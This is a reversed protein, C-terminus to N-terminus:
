YTVTFQTRIATQNEADGSDGLLGLMPFSTGRVLGPLFAAGTDPIPDLAWLLDVTLKSRHKNLYWNAGFTLVSITDDKDMGLHGGDPDVDLDIYEWRAFAEVEDPIIHYGGQVLFAIPDTHMPDVALGAEPEFNAGVLAAYVNAGNRELSGDLTWVLGDYTHGTLTGPTGINDGTERVEWHVAGGVFAATPEGSWATFDQMQDWGGMLRVDVRATVAFDSHDQDFRKSPFDLSAPPVMVDVVPEQREGSRFGDSIAVAVHVQEHPDWDAWIGQIRGITFIENILTRDVALQYEAETMEERLFPAKDEGASITLTDTIAYGIVIKDAWVDNTDSDVALRLAYTFRPSSIHGAFQVKARPIEFGLEGQDFRDESVGFPDDVNDRDGNRFNYIHRVQILGSIEMLFNNGADRIFFHEGDHGATLGDELLSARTDADALVENILAKVEEARRENLWTDGAAARLQQIEQGQARVTARLAEMEAALDAEALVPATSALLLALAIWTTQREM